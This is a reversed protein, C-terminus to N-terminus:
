SAAYTFVQSQIELSHTQEKLVLMLSERELALCACLLRGTFVATQCIVNYRGYWM